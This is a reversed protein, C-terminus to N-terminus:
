PRPPRGAPPRGRRRARRGPPADSRGPPPATTRAPPPDSGDHSPSTTHPPDRLADHWARALDRLAEPTRASLPVLTPRDAAAPRPPLEPASELIVHANTGSAGFSSVGALRRPADWATRRTPVEIPLASWDFHPTPTTFHLNPPLERHRLALVTKILGAIGAASEAHGINTKVSGIRLPEDRPRGECLASALARLEIPDGLATGTGHAEVYSIARPTVDAAALADRLLAEQALRNPTTLSGSPGDQNVASGRIVALVDDGAALADDLRKLVVVGCGESRVMGDAAADFTRCRGTPSLLRAKCMMIHMRPSLILNVGGALALDCEGLRLAQAALHVAVLSSSCATDVALSPGQRGLAYSLRGSAFN